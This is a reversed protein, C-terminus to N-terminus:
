PLSCYQCQKGVRCRYPHDIAHYLYSWTFARIWDDFLPISVVHSRGTVGEWPYCWRVTQDSEDATSRIEGSFWFLLAEKGTSLISEMTTVGNELIPGPWHGYLSTDLDKITKPLTYRTLIFAILDGSCYCGANLTLLCGTSSPRISTSLFCVSLWQTCVSDCVSRGMFLRMNETSSSKEQHLCWLRPFNRCQVLAILGLQWLPCCAM